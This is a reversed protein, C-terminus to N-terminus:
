GQMVAHSPRHLLHGALALLVPALPKDTTHDHFRWQHSECLQRLATCHTTMRHQYRSRFAAADGIELTQAGETAQLRYHGDYPLTVEAPDRVLVVHGRAGSHSLNALTQTWEPLPSLGDTLLIIEHLRDLRRAAPQETAKPTDEILMLALQDIIGRQQSTRGSQWYGVREGGRVLLDALALGLIVAHHGKEDLAWPSRFQMSPSQDFWLWVTHAAEWERERVYLMHDRGSRRWDIRQAAEGQTFPRFQWFTEGAGARRRGHLGTQM